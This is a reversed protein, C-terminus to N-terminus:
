NRRRLLAFVYGALIAIITGITYTILNVYATNTYQNMGRSGAFTAEPDSTSGLSHFILHAYGYAIFAQLLLLLILLVVIGLREEGRTLGEGFFLYSARGVLGLWVAYLPVLLFVFLLAPNGNGSFHGNPRPRFTFLDVLMLSTLSAMGLVLLSIILGSHKQLTGNM